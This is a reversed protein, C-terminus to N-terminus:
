TIIKSEGNGADPEEDASAHAGEQQQMANMMQQQTIAQITGIISRLMYSTFFPHPGLDAHGEISDALTIASAADEARNLGKLVLSTERLRHLTAAVREETFYERTYKDIANDLQEQRQEENVILKSEALDIYRKVFPFLLEKKIIWSGIEQIEFIDDANKDYLMRKSKDSEVQTAYFTVAEHEGQLKLRYRLSKFDGPVLQGAEQCRDYARQLLWRCHTPDIEGLSGHARTQVREKLDKFFQRFRKKPMEMAAFHVLGKHEDLSAQCVMLRSMSPMTLLVLRGGFSDFSSAWARDHDEEIADAESEESASTEAAIIEPEVGKEGLIYLARKAAKVTKKNESTDVIRQLVTASEVTERNSLSTIIRQDLADDEGVLNVLFGDSKKGYEDQMEILIALKLSEPLSFFEEKLSLARAYDDEGASKLYSGLQVYIEEAAHLQDLFDDDLSFGLESMVEFVKVKLDLPLIREEVLHTLPESLEPKDITSLLLFIKELEEREAKKLRLSIYETAENGFHKLQSVISFSDAEIQEVTQETILQSYLSSITEAGSSNKTM